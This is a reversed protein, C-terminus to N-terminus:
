IALIPGDVYGELPIITCLRIREPEMRSNGDEGIWQIAAPYPIGPMVHFESPDLQEVLQNPYFEIEDMGAGSWKDIFIKNYHREPRFKYDEDSDNDNMVILYDEFIKVDVFRMVFDLVDQESRVICSYSNGDLANLLFTSDNIYKQRDYNHTKKSYKLFEEIEESEDSNM